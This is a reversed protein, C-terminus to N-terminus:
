AAPGELSARCQDLHVALQLLVMCVSLNAARRPLALMLELERVAQRGRELEKDMAREMTTKVMTYERFSMYPRVPSCLYQRFEEKTAQM